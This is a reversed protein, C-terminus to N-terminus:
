EQLWGASKPFARRRYLPDNVYVREDDFGTVVLLHRADQDFATDTTQKPSLLKGNVAVIVPVGNKVQELIAQLDEKLQTPRLPLETVGLKSCEDPLPASLKSIAAAMQDFDTGGQGCQNKAGTMLERMTHVLETPSPATPACSYAQLVMALSAPGCNEMGGCLGCNDERQSIFPVDLITPAVVPNPEKTGQAVALYAAGSIFVPLLM